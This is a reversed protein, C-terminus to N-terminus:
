YFLAEFTEYLMFLYIKPLAIFCLKYLMTIREKTVFREYYRYSTGTVRMLKM